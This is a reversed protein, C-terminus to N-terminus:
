YLAGEEFYKKTLWNAGFVMIFGIVSQFLGIAMSLAPDGTQRLARFVYTDIIDTTPYLTGNDGVLAYIMGFDGFMIRGISLLTLTCVTPMILPLTIYKCQQWKTAGDLEASEYISGDIGDIAALFIIANIGSGKWVRMVTLIAPWVGPKTYWNVANMGLAKLVHNVLGYDMSFLSYLMYSVVVWSIYNPLLMMSQSTKLFWKSKIENLVIALVVSILTGFIIFLVNLKITNWTVVFADHSKFFFEFNRLGVFKNKFLSNRYNFEQFAIVMYPYTMYGFVFTYIIAPLALAYAAPNKIIDKFFSYKRKAAPKIAAPSNNQLILEDQRKSYQM